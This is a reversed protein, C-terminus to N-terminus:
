KAGGEAKAIVHQGLKLLMWTVCRNAYPYVYRSDCERCDLTHIDAAQKVEVATPQRMEVERHSQGKDQTRSRNVSRLTTCPNLITLGKEMGLLTASFPRSFRSRDFGTDRGGRCLM